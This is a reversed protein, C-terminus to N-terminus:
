RVLLLKQGTELTDSSLENMQRIRDLSVHYKKGLNWLTDGEGVACIIMSPLMKRKQVDLPKKEFDTIAYCTNCELALLKICVVAKVDWQQEDAFSIILQELYANLKYYHNQTMGLNDVHAEYPLKRTLVCIQGEETRYLIEYLLTGHVMLGSDDVHSEDVKVTGKTYLIQHIPADQRALVFKGSVKARNQTKTTINKIGLAEKKCEVECNVGYLDALVNLEKEEYLGIDLDLCGDIAIVRCEGDYDPMIEVQMNGMQYEIDTIMHEKCGDCELTGSFPMVHELYEVTDDESEYLFFCKREGQLSIKDDFSRFEVNMFQIDWWIMKKMNPYKQQLEIEDKIRFIDKQKKVLETMHYCEKKCEVETNEEVGTAIEVGRTECPRLNFQIVAMVSCKRSHIMEVKIDEIQTSIHIRDGAKVSDALLQESFSITGKMSCISEKGDEALYLIEYCLNGGIEVKKDLSEVGTIQVNMKETLVQRMDPNVDMVNVDEQIMIRTTAITDAYDVQVQEKLLKMERDGIVNM